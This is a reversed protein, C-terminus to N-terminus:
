WQQMGTWLESRVRDISQCQMCEVAQESVMHALPLICCWVGHPVDPRGPHLAGVDGSSCTGEVRELFFLCCILRAM